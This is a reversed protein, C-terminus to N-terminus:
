LLVKINVDLYESSCGGSSIKTREIGISDVKVGYINELRDIDTRILFELNKKHKKLDAVEPGRSYDTKSM